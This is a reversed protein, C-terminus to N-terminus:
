PLPSRYSLDNQFALIQTCFVAVEKSPDNTSADVVAQIGEEEHLLILAFAAATRATASTDTRLMTILADMGGKLQYRGLFEASNIRVGENESTLNRIYNKEAAAWNKEGAPAVASRDGAGAASATVAVIVALIFYRASRVM